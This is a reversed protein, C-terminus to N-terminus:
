ERLDITVEVEITCTCTDIKVLAEKLTDVLFIRNYIKERAFTVVFNVDDPLLTVPSIKFFFSEKQIYINRM